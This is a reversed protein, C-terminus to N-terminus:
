KHPEPDGGSAAAGTKLVFDRGLSSNLLSIKHKCKHTNTKRPDQPGPMVNEILTDCEIGMDGLGM